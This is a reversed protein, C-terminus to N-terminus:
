GIKKLRVHMGTSLDVLNDVNSSSIDLQSSGLAGISSLSATSVNNLSPRLPSNEVEEVIKQKLKKFM